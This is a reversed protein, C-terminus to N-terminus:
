QDEMGVLDVFNTFQPDHVIVDALKMEASRLSEGGDIKM